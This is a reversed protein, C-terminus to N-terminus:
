VYVVLSVYAKGEYLDLECRQALVSNTNPDIEYNAM